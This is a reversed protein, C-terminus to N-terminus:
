KTEGIIFKKYHFDPIKVEQITFYNREKKYIKKRLTNESLL